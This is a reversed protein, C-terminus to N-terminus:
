APSRAQITPIATASAAVRTSGPAAVSAWSLGAAAAAPSGLQWGAVLAAGAGTVGFRAGEVDIARRCHAADVVAAAGPNMARVRGGEVHCILARDQETWLWWGQGHLPARQRRLRQWGWAFAPQISTWRVGARTAAASVAAKVAPPLGYGLGQADGARHDVMLEWDGISAGPADFLLGFRHRLLAEVQMRSWLQNGTELLMMPLWASEVVLDARTLAKTGANAVAESTHAAEELLAGLAVGFSTEGASSRQLERRAACVLGAQSWVWREVACAGIRVVDRRSELPWM